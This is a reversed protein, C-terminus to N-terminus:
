CCRRHTGSRGRAPSLLLGYLGEQLPTAFLFTRAQDSYGSAFPGGFMDTNLAMLPLIGLVFESLGSSSAHFTFRSVHSACRSCTPPYHSALWLAYLGYVPVVIATPARAAISLALVFGSAAFLGLQARKSATRAVLLLYFSAVLLLSTLPETFLTRSHPWAWTAFGYVLAM